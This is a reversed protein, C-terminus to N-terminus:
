ANMYEMACKTLAENRRQAWVEFVDEPLAGTWYEIKRIILNRHDDATLHYHASAQVPAWNKGSPEDSFRIEFQVVVIMKKIDIAYYHPQIDEHLGPHVFSMLLADRSMPEAASPSPATNMIFEFDSAFYKKLNRVTELAGQNKRVQEFYVDFWKSIKEYTLEISKKKESNAMTGGFAVTTSNKRIMLRGRFRALLPETM